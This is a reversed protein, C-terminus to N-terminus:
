EIKQGRAASNTQERVIDVNADHPVAFVVRNRPTTRYRNRNVTTAIMEMPQLRSQQRRGIQLLLMLMASRLDCDRINKITEVLDSERMKAIKM